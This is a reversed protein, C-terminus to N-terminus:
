LLSNGDADRVGGCGIIIYDVIWWVLLGGCTLLKLIGLGTHGLYFRDIGFPGLFYSLLFAAGQSRSPNGVLYRRPLRGDVDRVGATGILVFDIFAWIGLGGCTLLKAVGLGIQGLYFRDAGFCGLLLSLVFLTTQDRSSATGDSPLPPPPVAAAAGENGAASLVTASPVTVTTECRPCRAQQGALKEPARLNMGCEPCIVDIAM